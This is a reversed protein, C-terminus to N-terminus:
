QAGTPPSYPTARLIANTVRAVIPGDRESLARKEQWETDSQFAAWRQERDALSDFALMYVLENSAGGIDSTWFGVVKIGHRAFHGLTVESFRKHLAPMRGPVVAYTRLEYIM